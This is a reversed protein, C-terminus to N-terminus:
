SLVCWSAKAEWMIVDRLVWQVGRGAAGLRSNLFDLFDMLSNTRLDPILSGFVLDGMRASQYGCGQDSALELNLVDLTKTLGRFLLYEKILTDCFPLAHDDGM